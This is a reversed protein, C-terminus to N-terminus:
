QAGLAELPLETVFTGRPSCKDYIYTDCKAVIGWVRGRTVAPSGSWGHDVGQTTDLWGDSLSGVLVGSTTRGFYSSFSLVPEGHAPVPGIELPVLGHSGPATLVARDYAESKFEVYAEPMGWGDPPLYRVAAGLANAHVCHEATVLVLEDSSRKVAFANCRGEYAITRTYGPLESSLPEFGERVVPRMLTVVSRLQEPTAAGVDRAPTCACGGFAVCLATGLVCLFVIVRVHLNFWRGNYVTNM